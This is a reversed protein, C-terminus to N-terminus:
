LCLNGVRKANALALNYAQRIKIELWDVVSGVHWRKGACKGMAAPPLDNGAVRRQITREDVKFVGALERKTLLTDRPLNKLEVLAEPNGRTM